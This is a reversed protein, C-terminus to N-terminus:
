LTSLPGSDHSSPGRSTSTADQTAQAARNSTSARAWKPESRARSPASQSPSPVTVNSAVLRSGKASPVANPSAAARAICRPRERVATEKAKRLGSALGTAPSKV